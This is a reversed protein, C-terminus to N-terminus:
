RLSALSFLYFYIRCSVRSDAHDVSRKQGCLQIPLWREFNFCTFALASSFFISRYFSGLLWVRLLTLLHAWQGWCFLLHCFPEVLLFLLCPPLPRTASIKLWVASITHLWEMTFRPYVLWSHVHGSFPLGHTWNWPLIHIFWHSLVHGSFQVHFCAGFCLLMVLASRLIETTTTKTATPYFGLLSIVRRHKRRIGFSTGLFPDPKGM